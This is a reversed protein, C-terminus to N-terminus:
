VCVLVTVCVSKCWSACVCKCWPVCVCACMYVTCFPPSEGYLFPYYPQLVIVGDRGPDRQLCAHLSAVLAEQGSTTVTVETLPCLPPGGHEAARTESIAKRLELLGQQDSYQAMNVDGSMLAAAAAERAVKSGPFDPFGQGLNIMGPQRGLQSVEAWVSAASSALGRGGPVVSLGTTGKAMRQFLRCM